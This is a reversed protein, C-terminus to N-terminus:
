SFFLRGGASAVAETFAEEEADSPTGAPGPPLGQGQRQQEQAFAGSDRQQNPPGDQGIFQMVEALREQLYDLQAEVALLTQEEGVVITVSLGEPSSALHIKVKGLEPPDLQLVVEAPGGRVVNTEVAQVIQRVIKPGVPEEGGPAEAPRALAGVEWSLAPTSSDVELSSRRGGRDAERPEPITVLACKVKCAPTSEQVRNVVKVGILEVASRFPLLTWYGNGNPDSPTATAPGHQQLAASDSPWSGSNVGVHDQELRFRAVLEQPNITQRVEGVVSQSVLFDIGTGNEPKVEGRGPDVAEPAPPPGVAPATAAVRNEPPTSLASEVEAGAPPLAQTPDAEFNASGKLTLHVVEQQQSIGQLIGPVGPHTEGKPLVGRIAGQHVSRTQGTGAAGDVQVPAFSHWGNVGPMYLMM